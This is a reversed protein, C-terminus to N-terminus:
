RRQIHSKSYRNFYLIKAPVIQFTQDSSDILFHFPLRLRSGSINQCNKPYPVFYMCQKRKVQHLNFIKVHELINSSAKSLDGVYVKNQAKDIWMVNENVLLISSISM